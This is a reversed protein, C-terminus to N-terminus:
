MTYVPIGRRSALRSKSLPSKFKRQREEEHIFIRLIRKWAMFRGLLGGGDAGIHGHADTGKVLLNGGGIVPGLIQWGADADLEFELRLVKVWYLWSAVM